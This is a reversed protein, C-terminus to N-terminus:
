ARPKTDHKPRTEPRWLADGVNINRRIWAARRRFTDPAYCDRSSTACHRILAYGGAYGLLAVTETRSSRRWTALHEAGQMYGVLVSRRAHECSPDGPRKPVPTMVGCSFKGGPEATRETADYRSENYAIALLMAPDVDHASAAVLAAALHERAQVPSLYSPATARLGDVAQEPLLAMIIAVIINMTVLM